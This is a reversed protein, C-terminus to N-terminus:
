ASAEASWGWDVTTAMSHSILKEVRTAILTYIQGSHSGYVPCKKLQGLPLCVCFNRLLWLLVANATLPHTALESLTCPNPSPLSLLLIGKLFQFNCIPSHPKAGLWPHCGEAGEELHIVSVHVSKFSARQGDVRGDVAGGWALPRNPPASKGCEGVLHPNSVM